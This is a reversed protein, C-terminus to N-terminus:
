RGQAAKQLIYILESMDIKNNQNTDSLFMTHNIDSKLGTIIKLAIIADEPTIQKDNNIDILLNVAKTLEMTYRKSKSITSNNYNVDYLEFKIIGTTNNIWLRREEYGHWWGTTTM